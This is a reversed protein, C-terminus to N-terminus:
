TILRRSGRQVHWFRSFNVISEYGYGVARLASGISLDDIWDLVSDRGSGCPTGSGRRHLLNGFAYDINRGRDGLSIFLSRAEAFLHYVRRASVFIYYDDILSDNVFYEALARGIELEALSSTSVLDLERCLQDHGIASPSLVVERADTSAATTSTLESAPRDMFAEPPSAPCAFVTSIVGFLLFAVLRRAITAKTDPTVAIDGRPASGLGSFLANRLSPAGRLCRTSDEYAHSIFIRAM